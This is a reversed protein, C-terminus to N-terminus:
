FKYAIANRLEEVKTRQPGAVAFYVFSSGGTAVCKVAARNGNLTGYSFNGNRVVGTYGLATLTKFAQDACAGVPMPLAKHDSWLEPAAGAPATNSDVNVTTTSACGSTVAAVVIALFAAKLSLEQGPSRGYQATDWLM